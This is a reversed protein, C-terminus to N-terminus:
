SCIKRAGWRVSFIIQRILSQYGGTNPEQLATFGQCSYQSIKPWYLLFISVKLPKDMDLWKRMYWVKIPTESYTSKMHRHIHVASYVRWYHIYMGSTSIFDCITPTTNWSGENWMRHKGNSASERCFRRLEAQSSAPQGFWAGFMSSKTQYIGLKTQYVPFFYCRHKIVDFNSM